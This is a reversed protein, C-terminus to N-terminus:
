LEQIIPSILIRCPVNRRAFAQNYLFFLELLLDAVVEAGQAFM